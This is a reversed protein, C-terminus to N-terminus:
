EEEEEEIGEQWLVADAKNLFKRGDSTICVFDLETKVM